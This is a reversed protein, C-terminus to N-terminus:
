TWDPMADALLDRVIAGHPRFERSLYTLKGGDVVSGIPGRNRGSRLEESHFTKALRGVGRGAGTRTTPAFGRLLRDAIM